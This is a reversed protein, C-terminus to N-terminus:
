AGIDTLILSIIAWCGEAEKLTQEGAKIAGLPNHYDQHLVVESQALGAQLARSSDQMRVDLHRWSSACPSRSASESLM